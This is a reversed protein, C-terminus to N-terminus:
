IELKAASSRRAGEAVSQPEHVITSRADIGRAAASHRSGPRAIGHRCHTRGMSSSRASVRWRWATKAAGRM